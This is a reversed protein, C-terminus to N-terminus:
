KLFLFLILLSFLEASLPWTEGSLEYRAAGGPLTGLRCFDEGNTGWPKCLRKAPKRVIWGETTKEQWVKQLGDMFPFIFDYKGVTVAILSYKGSFWKHSKHTNVKQQFCLLWLLNELPSMPCLGNKRAQCKSDRYGSLFIRQSLTQYHQFTLILKRLHNKSKRFMSIPFSIEQKGVNLYIWTSHEIFRFYIVLFLM